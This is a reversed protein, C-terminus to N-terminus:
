EERKFSRRERPAEVTAPDGSHRLIEAAERALTEAARRTGAIALLEGNAAVGWQRGDKVVQLVSPSM